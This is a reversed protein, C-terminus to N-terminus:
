KEVESKHSQIFREVLRKEDKTIWKIWRGCDGCYLGTATGKTETFLDISGCKPCAYEKMKRGGRLIRM